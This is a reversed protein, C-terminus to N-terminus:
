ARCLFTVAEKIQHVSKELLSRPCGINMRMFGEGDTGFIHGENMAVRAKTLMFTALEDAALGLERCDLWVLYTSEPQIVKIQPINEQFYRVLFALNGQIYDIAQELWEDGSRYAIETATIGLANPSGIALSNISQNFRERLAENPIIICSTQLGALNFTKSPAICTFSQEAFAESVAAFPTHKYGKYVLDCHIEDSIVLIKNKICIQGLMTLEERSWVRGVPNHPNCLVLIKVGGDLKAELDAFDMTYRGNEFKLSNNVVQRGLSTIIRAFPHYVPTQIMIKDGPQTFSNIIVSIAPLIGPTHAMWEGEISWQHRRKVWQVLADIYSDPRCAYGYIGHEVRQTLAQIVSPPSKFDMDAVWMPIVDNVGFRNQLDDWKECATNARDIVQDFDYKM